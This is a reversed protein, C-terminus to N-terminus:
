WSSGRRTPQLEGAPLPLNLQEVASDFLLRRQELSLGPEFVATRYDRFAAESEQQLALRNAAALAPDVVEPKTSGLIEVRREGPRRGRTEHQWPNRRSRAPDREV